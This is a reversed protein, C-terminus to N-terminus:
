HDTLVKEVAADLEEETPLTYIRTTDLSEHGLLEAVTTISEGSRLLQKAFTHRCVHPGFPDGDDDPGLGADAGVATVVDYVSRASLRHGREALLLAPSDAAGPWSPRVDLWAQIRERLAANIPVTRV